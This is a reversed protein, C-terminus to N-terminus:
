QKTKKLLLVVRDASTKTHPAGEAPVMENNGALLTLNQNLLLIDLRCIM